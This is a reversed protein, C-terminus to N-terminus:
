LGGDQMNPVLHHRGRDSFVITTPRLTPSIHRLLAKETVFASRLRLPTLKRQCHECKRHRWLHHPLWTVTPTLSNNVTIIEANPAYFMM